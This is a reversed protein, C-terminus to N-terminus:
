AGNAKARTQVDVAERVQRLLPDADTRVKGYDLNFVWDFGPADAALHQLMTEIKDFGKAMIAEPTKAEAYEDWHALVDAALDDPLPDCLTILDARERAERGDDATQETAPVDGSIAEGLDHIICLKLLKLMDIGDLESEFLLVLLCLRWTHEATSEARGQRTRGSRLTDKLAEAGQLFSLIASLRQPEMPTM